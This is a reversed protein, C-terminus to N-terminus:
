NDSKKIISKMVEIYKITSSNNDVYNFYNEDEKLKDLPNINIYDGKYFKDGKLDETVGAMHLIPRQNYIDLNDTAWSFNLENIIKTEKGDGWLNWLLSWMEATWFQIEGGNIPFRRHYDHMQDYLTNSDNYIKFWIDTNTNKIIYQGGGSNDQNCEVCNIDIGVVDVMEQLLQNENSEPHSSEYRRCCNTIYHHGIYGKTDAMYCVDDKLYEVFNPIERFIIDADHLFFNKGNEPFEKLWKYILYPKVSPIYHKKDRDDSYFHVNYGKEKLKLAGESPETIGNVLGFIIHIQNPNIGKETFNHGYIECQWHFYPVDPQATVFLLESM